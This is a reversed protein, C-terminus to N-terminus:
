QAYVEGHPTTVTWVVHITQGPNLQYIQPDQTTMNTLTTGDIQVESIGGCNTLIVLKPSESVTYLADSVPNNLAEASDGLLGAGNTWPTVINGKPNYGINGIIRVGAGITTNWVGRRNVFSNGQEQWNTITWANVGCIHRTNLTEDIDCNQIKVNSITSGGAGVFNVIGGADAPAVMTCNNVDLSAIEATTDKIVIQPVFCNLFKIHAGVGAQIYLIPLASGSFLAGDFVVKKTKDVYIPQAANTFDCDRVSVYNNDDFVLSAYAGFTDFVLNDLFSRHTIYVNVPHTMNRFVSNALFLTDVNTFAASDQAASSPGEVISNQLTFNKISFTDTQDWAILVWGNVGVKSNRIKCNDLLCFDMTKGATQVVAAFVNVAKGDGDVTLNRFVCYKSKALILPDMGDTGAKLITADIGEGEIVVSVDEPIVPPTNFVYTGAKLLIKGGLAGANQLVTTADLSSYDTGGAFNCEARYTTGDKWMSYSSPIAELLRDWEAKHIRTGDPYQPM